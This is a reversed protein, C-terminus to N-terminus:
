QSLLLYHWVSLVHDSWEKWMMLLFEKKIVFHLMKIIEQHYLDNHLHHLRDKSTSSSCIWSLSFAANNEQIIRQWSASFCSLEMKSKNKTNCMFSVSKQSSVLRFHREIKLYQWCSCINREDSFLAEAQSIDFKKLLNSCILWRLLHLM